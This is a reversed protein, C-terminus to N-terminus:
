PLRRLAELFADMQEDTGVTVRVGGRLDPQDFYRVLIGRSRLAEYLRRGDAVPLWFFNARSPPVAYGIRRLEEVVRERTACVRAVNREMWAYDRLAAVGAAIALRSVNYSDKVKALQEILEARAFALGLRLGALSFSKSFTRLVVLNPHRAILALASRAGFDVYAEDAVVLADTAAALADIAAPDVDAGFPSNPSCVFILRAGARQLAEPVTGPAAPVAVVKAGALTALTPYLSYTPSPFAVTDGEGVAARLCIALLEDSGNGVLVQEPRVGYRQAAAERLPDALPPPYRELHRRAEQQIAELVAPSPPYPNENTNLKILGGDPPQEGPQYGRASLVRPHIPLRTM